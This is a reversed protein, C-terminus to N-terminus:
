SGCSGGRLDCVDLQEEFEEGEHKIAENYEVPTIPQGSRSGDPYVTIGRLKPLYKLLMEGFPKVVDENNSKSGWPALNLTSSVAHDVYEQIDVLFKVRRELGYLTESLKYADEINDPNIGQKVLRKVTPDIVYQYKWGDRTLYRRKYAKCLVPEIGSTTEAVISITGTPAIARTAAPTSINWITSYMSSATKSESKYISLWQRLEENVAYCYNRKILWEHIGMLGLGLRRNKERVRAVKEYPVDSYLTGATLFQTGCWVKWSYDELTNVRAINISGLNCIDSDDESTIETCANRLSEKSNNYNISFGPEGTRLMMAITQWYVSCAWVHHSHSDDYYAHFFEKDLIVSINTYDMPAPFRFDKEKMIRIDESWDKLKIFDFIEPHKWNLGAWLAARRNGGSEAARGLENVGQMAVCAGSATGGTRSLYTGKPRLDSYDIGIGAGSMLALTSKSFLDAWGERSDEARLLLCNQTQHFPRGSQALYRGGPLFERNVISEFIYTIDSNRIHPNSGVVNYTVRAAIEEWTEKRNNLNWAYRADIVSKALSGFEQM